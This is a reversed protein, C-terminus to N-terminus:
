SRKRVFSPAQKVEFDQFNLLHNTKDSFRADPFVRPRLAHLARATLQGNVGALARERDREHLCQLLAQLRGIIEDPVDDFVQLALLASSALNGRRTSAGRRKWEESDRENWEEAQGHEEAIRVLERIAAPGVSVLAETAEYQSKGLTRLTRASLSPTELVLDSLAHAWFAAQETEPRQALTAMFTDTERVEPFLRDFLAHHVTRRTLDILESESADHPWVYAVFDPTRDIDNLLAPSKEVALVLADVLREAHRTADTDSCNEVHSRFLETLRETEAGRPAIDFHVFEPPNWGPHGLRRLDVTSEDPYRAAIRDFGRETNLALVPDAYERHFQVAMAYVCVNDPSAAFAALAARWDELLAVELQQYDAERM